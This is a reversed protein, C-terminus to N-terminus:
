EHEKAEKTETLKKVEDKTYRKFDTRTIAVLDIGDGTGCDRKLASALARLALRLNDKIPRDDKYADELVGYAMPSGSGTSVFKEETAGGIPDINFIRPKDDVGGILLQVLFPFVKYQNMLNSVLTCVATVSIRKGNRVKYLQAEAKMLRVLTQADGVSGAVTVALLDDIQFIKQTEKNAIFYGMTARKDAAFVVGDSCILGITTTGKRGLDESM